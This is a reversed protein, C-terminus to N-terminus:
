TQYWSPSGRRWRPGDPRVCLLLREQAWIAFRDAWPWPGDTGGYLAGGSLRNMECHNAGLNTGVISINMTIVSCIWNKSPFHDSKQLLGVIKYTTTKIIICTNPMKM